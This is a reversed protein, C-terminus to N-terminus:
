HIAYGGDVILNAGTIMDAADSALFLTTASGLVSAKGEQFAAFRRSSFTETDTMM